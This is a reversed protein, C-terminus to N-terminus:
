VCWISVRERNLFQRVWVHLHAGTRNWTHAGLEGQVTTGAVTIEATEEKVREGETGRSQENKQTAAASAAAKMQLFKTRDAARKARQQKLRDSHSSSSQPSAGVLRQPLHEPPSCMNVCVCM